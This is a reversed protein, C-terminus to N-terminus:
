AGETGAAIVQRARALVEAPPGKRRNLPRTLDRDLWPEDRADGVVVVYYAGCVPRRLCHAIRWGEAREAEALTQAGCAGHQLYSRCEPCWGIVSPAHLWTLLLRDALM